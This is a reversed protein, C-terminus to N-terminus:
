AASGAAREARRKAAHLWNRRIAASGPRIVRWYRGFKRRSDLGTCHVRTETRLRTLSGETEVSFNMAARAYGPREFAAFERAGSVSPVLGGGLKWMQGIVGAVMERGPDEGLFVFGSDLMQDWLPLLRDSPLGGRRSFVAPLSRVGFLLRVMPMEGPTADKAAKLADAPQASVLTRHVEGFEYEPMIEDLLVGDAVM